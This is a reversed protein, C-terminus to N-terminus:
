RPRTQCRPVAARTVRHTHTPPHRTHAWTPKPHCAAETSSPGRPFRCPRWSLQMCSSCPWLSLYLSLSPLWLSVSLTPTPPPLFPLLSRLLFFFFSSLSLMFLHISSLSCVFFFVGALFSHFFLGNTAWGRNTHCLSISLSMEVTRGGGEGWPLLALLRESLGLSPWTGELHMTPSLSFMGAISTM